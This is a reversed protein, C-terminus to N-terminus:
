PPMAAQAYGEAPLSHVADEDSRSRASVLLLQRSGDSKGHLRLVIEYKEAPKFTFDNTVLIDNEGSEDEGYIDQLFLRFRLPTETPCKEIRFRGDRGTVCQTHDLALEKMRDRDLNLEDMLGLDHGGLPRGEDDRLVGEILPNRNLIMDQTHEGLAPVAVATSLGAIFRTKQEPQKEDSLFVVVDQDLRKQLHGTKEARIVYFEGGHRHDGENRRGATIKHSFKGESDTTLTRSLVPAYGYSRYLKVTADPVPKGLDDNVVGSITWYNFLYDVPQSPKTYMLEIKNGDKDTLSDVYIRHRKIGNKEETKWRLVAEYRGVHPLKFFDTKAVVKDNKWADPLACSVELFADMETPLTDTVFNLNKDLPGSFAPQWSAREERKLDLVTQVFPGYYSNPDPEGPPEGPPEDFVVKGRISVSPQVVIDITKPERAYVALKEDWNEGQVAVSPKPEYCTLHHKDDRSWVGSKENQILFQDSVIKGDSNKAGKWVHGPCSVSISIALTRPKEPTPNAGGILRFATVSHDSFRLSYNGNEDAITKQSGPRHGLYGTVVIEAHPVPKGDLNSVAGSIVYPWRANLEEETHPRGKLRATFIATAGSVIEQTFEEPQDYVLGDPTRDYVSTVFVYRGLFLNILVDDGDVPRNWDRSVQIPLNTGNWSKVSLAAGAINKETESDIIRAQVTGPVSLSQRISVAKNEADLTMPPTMAVGPKVHADKNKPIVSVALRYTGAPLTTISCTNGKWDFSRDASYKGEPTFPEWYSGDSDTWYFARTRKEDPLTDIKRCLSKNNSYINLCQEPDLPKGDVDFFEVNIEHDLGLRKGLEPGNYIWPANEPCPKGPIRMIEFAIIRKDSDIVARLRASAHIEVHPEARGFHLVAEWLVGGPHTVPKPPDFSILEGTLLDVDSDPHTVNKERLRNFFIKLKTEPLQFRLEESFLKAAESFQRSQCRKLFQAVIESESDKPECADLVGHSLALFFFLVPVFPVRTTHM